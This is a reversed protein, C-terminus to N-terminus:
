AEEEGVDVSSPTSNRGSGSTLSHYWKSHRHIVYGKDIQGTFMSAVLPRNDKILFAVLHIVISLLLIM